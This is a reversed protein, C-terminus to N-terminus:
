EWKVRENVGASNIEVQRKRFDLSHERMLKEALEGNGDFIAQAILQHMTRVYSRLPVPTITSRSRPRHVTLLSSGFLDLVSNGSISSVTAHFNVSNYFFARRDQELDLEDAEALIERLRDLGEPDQAEAALRAMLPEVAQLAVYVDHYTSGRMQFHLTAMRAFDAPRLQELVPGGGPGTKMSILGQMELLRLAERVTARGVAYQQMMEAEPSLRDGPLLGQEMVEDVIQRALQVAIKSSGRQLGTGNPGYSRVPKASSGAM